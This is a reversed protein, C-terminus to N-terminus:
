LKERVIIAIQTCADDARSMVDRYVEIMERSAKIPRKGTGNCAQCERDTLMPTGPAVEFRVGRCTDCVDNLWHTLIQVGTRSAAGASLKRNLMSRRTWNVFIRKAAELERADRLYKVRFVPMRAQIAAMGAAGLVYVDCMTEKHTLDSSVEASSLWESMMKM